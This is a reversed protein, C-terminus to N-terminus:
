VLVRVLLVLVERATQTTLLGRTSRKWQAGHRRGDDDVSRGADPTDRITCRITPRPHDASVAHATIDNRAASSCESDCTRTRSETASMANMMVKMLMEPAHNRPLM